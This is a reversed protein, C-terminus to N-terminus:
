AGEGPLSSRKRLLVHPCREALEYNGTRRAVLDFGAKQLYNLAVDFRMFNNRAPSGCYLEMTGIEERSWANAEALAAVDIRADHWTRWVEHLAVDPADGMGQVAMSLRWKFAHISGIAGTLLDAIVDDPTEGVDPRCFLRLLLYGGSRLCRQVSSLLESLQDPAGVPTLSGDGIALDFSEDPFPARIWDACVARRRDSNGPWVHDIMAQVREVAFLDFNQLCRAAGIEPTIGLLWARKRGASDLLETEVSLIEEIIQVDEVCPRVPSGLLGWQLALGRWLAGVDDPTQQGPPRFAAESMPQLGFTTSLEQAFGLRLIAKEDLQRHISHRGAATDPTGSQQM